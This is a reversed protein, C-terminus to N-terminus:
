KEGFLTFQPNRVSVGPRRGAKTAASGVDGGLPLGRRAGRLRPVPRFSACAPSLLVIAEEGTAAADAFAQAVATELDGSITWPAADGLTVAFAHAAEGILYAKDVRPFLSKLEDIGGAKPRGGAIWYFRPYSSMAQRAADANTAKSDNVFRM